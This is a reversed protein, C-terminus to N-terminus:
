KFSKVMFHWSARVDVNTIFSRPCWQRRWNRIKTNRRPTRKFLLMSGVVASKWKILCAASAWTWYGNELCLSDKLHPEENKRAKKAKRPCRSNVLNPSHADHPTVWFTDATHHTRHRGTRKRCLHMAFPWSEKSLSRWVAGCTSAVYAFDSNAEAVTCNLMSATSQLTFIWAEVTSMGTVLAQLAANVIPILIAVAQTTIWVLDRRRTSGRHGNGIRNDTICVLAKIIFM